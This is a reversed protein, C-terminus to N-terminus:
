KNKEIFNPIMIYVLKEVKNRFQYSKIHLLTDNNKM